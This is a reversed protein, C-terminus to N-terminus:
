VLGTIYKTIILVPLIELACLYLILYFISINRNIFIILLRSVRFLYMIAVVAIGAIILSGTEIIGTYFIMVIIVSLFVACFRYSQYISILYDRFVDHTESVAGTLLCVFHRITIALSIIGMIILWAIIGRIGSPILGYYAAVSYIFLGIILFSVLNLVTAQWHYLVSADKTHPENKRRFLFFRSFSAGINSQKVLSFLFAAAIIVIILWDTHLPQPPLEIGPKLNKILMTRNEEDKKKNKEIFVFPFRPYKGYGIRHIFNQYDYFTVDAISNRSCVSVTDFDPPLINRHFSIKHKTTDKQQYHLSVNGTDKAVSGTDTVTTKKLKITDQQIDSFPVIM